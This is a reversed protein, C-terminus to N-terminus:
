RPSAANISWDYAHDDITTRGALLAALAPDAHARLHDLVGAASDGFDERFWAYISSVILRDGELRVGRPHNVFDRAARDFLDFTNAATFAEGQLNPCGIAACNVAYHIRPDRWIPRLIRHEIDNLSLNEGAVTVLKADWPGRSFLGPSIDIDRISDVPWHTLVLQVTLANYLNIWYALQEPRSLSDVPTAALSDVYADLARRDETSVGAYAFRAIGDDDVSRYRDLLRNWPAHDIRDTSTPDYTQWRPWPDADPAFRSAMGGFGATLVVAILILATRATRRRINM